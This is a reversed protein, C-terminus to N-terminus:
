HTQISRYYDTAWLGVEDDPEDGDPLEAGLHAVGDDVRFREGRSVFEVPGHVGAAELIIAIRAEAGEMVGRALCAAAKAEEAARLHRGEADNASKFQAARQEILTRDAHSLTDLDITRPM